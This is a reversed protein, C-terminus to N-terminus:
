DRCGAKKSQDKLEAAYNVEKIPFKPADKGKMMERLYQIDSVAGYREYGVEIGQVGPHNGNRTFIRWASGSRPRTMRHCFGDLLYKNGAADIGITAFATKDGTEVQVLMTAWIHLAAHTPPPRFPAVDPISSRVGTRLPNQLLQAALYGTANKKREWNEKVLFRSGMRHWQRAPYIPTVVGRDM